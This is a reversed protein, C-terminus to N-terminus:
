CKKDKDLEKECRIRARAHWVCEIEEVNDGEELEIEYGTEHTNYNKSLKKSIIIKTVKM